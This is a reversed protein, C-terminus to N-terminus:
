TEQPPPSLGMKETDIRIGLFAIVRSPGETKHSAVPVGLSGCLHLSTALARGCKDSDAQGLLLFDDLHEVCRASANDM